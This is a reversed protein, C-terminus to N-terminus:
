QARRKGKRTATARLRRCGFFPCAMGPVRRVLRSRLLGRNIQRGSRRLIVTLVCNSESVVIRGLMEEMEVVRDFEKKVRSTLQFEVALMEHEDLQVKVCGRLMEDGMLAKRDFHMEDM